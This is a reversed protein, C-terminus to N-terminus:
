VASVLYIEPYLAVWGPVHPRHHDPRCGSRADMGPPRVPDVSSPLGCSFGMILAVGMRRNLSAPTSTSPNNM